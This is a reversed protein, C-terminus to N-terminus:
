KRPRESTLGHFVDGQKLLCNSSTCSEYDTGERNRSHAELPSWYRTQQAHYGDPGDQKKECVEVYHRNLGSAGPILSFCWVGLSRETPSPTFRVDVAQQGCGSYPVSLGSCSKRGTNLM